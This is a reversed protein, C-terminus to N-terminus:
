MAVALLSHDLLCLRLAFKRCLGTPPDDSRITAAHLAVSHPGLREVGIGMEELLVLKTHVDGIDPLNHLVLRDETLLSAALLPLAANKNGAPTISGSIRHGGEIIFREM